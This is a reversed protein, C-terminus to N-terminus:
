CERAPPDSTKGSRDVRVAICDPAPSPLEIQVADAESTALVEIGDNDLVEYIDGEKPRVPVWAITVRGDPGESRTINTPSVPTVILRDVPKTPRTPEAVTVRDDDTGPGSILRVAFLAIVVALLAAAGVVLRNPRGKSSGSSAGSGAASAPAVAEDPPGTVVDSANAFRPTSLDVSRPAVPAVAGVGAILGDASIASRQVTGEGAGGRADVTGGSTTGEMPPASPMQSRIVVPGKLRTGDDEDVGSRHRVDTTGEDRVELQTMAFHQEVEVEQLSRALAAASSPRDAPSKSMAQRLVRELSAPVDGRGTPPVEEREIRAVLDLSRNSGGPVEFPSRGVLLTYITAALSYVDAREDSRGEGAVVEPPSWPISMGAAETTEGGVTTAAIGFDTLGPRGYESTLINAPKIDRHLIGARHATEIASGVQIGTRLVEAISLQETRARVSYNPRPYYEMVLFPNGGPAIAAHFITVIYPHTSLAAMTNAEDDFRRRGADDISEALLVKVAVQRRPMHQTYLFVDSYGGSGLPREFSYGPLDPPQM